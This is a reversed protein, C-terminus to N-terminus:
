PAKLSLMVLLAALGEANRSETARRLLMDEAETVQLGKGVLPWVEKISTQGEGTLVVARLALAADAVATGPNEVQRKYADLVKLGFAKTSESAAAVSDLDKKTKLATAVAYPAGGFVIATFVGWILPFLLFM